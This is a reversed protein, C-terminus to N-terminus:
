AAPDASLRLNRIKRETLQARMRLILVAVFYLKFVLVMALLPWLMSPRWRRATWASRHQRAPAAHEVLRGLVQHDAPQGRRGPGPDRRRARRAGPGRLRRAARHLRSLPLVPDAGLDAARGVGVLHGVDAQGLALRHGACIATFAAGVPAAARAAVEALPHRWVLPRLSGLRWAALLGFMRWGPRRCTSSCSGSAEGQQYDPPAVVLALYLGLVGLVVALGAM